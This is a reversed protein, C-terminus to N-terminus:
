PSVRLRQALLHQLNLKSLRGELRRAHAEFNSLLDPNEFATPASSFAEKRRSMVSIIPLLSRPSPLPHQQLAKRTRCNNTCLFKYLQFSLKRERGTTYMGAHRGEKLAMADSRGGLSQRCGRHTRSCGYYEDYVYRLLSWFVLFAAYAHGM